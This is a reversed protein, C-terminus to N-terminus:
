TCSFGRDVWRTLKGILVPITETIAPMVANLAM